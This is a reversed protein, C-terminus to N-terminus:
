AAERGRRGGRVQNEVAERTGALTLVMREFHSRMGWMCKISLVAEDMLLYTTRLWEPPRVLSPLLVIPREDPLPSPPM